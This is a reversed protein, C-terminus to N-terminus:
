VLIVRGDASLEDLLPGFDVPLLSPPLLGIMDIRRNSYYLM